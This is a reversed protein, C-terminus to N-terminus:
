CGDGPISVVGLIGVTSLGLVSACLAVGKGASEEGALVGHEDMWRLYCCYLRLSERCEMKGSM